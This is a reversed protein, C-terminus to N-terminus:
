PLRELAEEVISLVDLNNARRADLALERWVARARELDGLVEHIAGRLYRQELADLEPLAAILATRVPDRGYATLKQELREWGGPLDPIQTFDEFMAALKM